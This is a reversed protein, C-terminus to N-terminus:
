MGGSPCTEIRQMALRVAHSGIPTDLNNDRVTTEIRQMALRVAHGAMLVLTWGGDRTEIRQM